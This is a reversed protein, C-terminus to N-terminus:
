RDSWHNWGQAGPHRTPAQNDATRDDQEKKLQAKIGALGSKNQSIDISVSEYVEQTLEEQVKISFSQYVADFLSDLIEGNSLIGDLM